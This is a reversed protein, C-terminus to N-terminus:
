NQLIIPLYVHNLDTTHRAMHWGGNLQYGSTATLRGTEPQGVTGVLTYGSESDSIEGGGSDVTYWLIAFPSTQALASGGITLLLTVFVSSLIMVTKARV